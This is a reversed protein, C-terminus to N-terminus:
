ASPELLFPLPNPEGRADGSHIVPRKVSQNEKEKKKRKENIKILQLSIIKCYQIPKKGYMSM